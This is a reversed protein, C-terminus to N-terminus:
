KLLKKLQVIEMGIRAAEMVNGLKEQKKREQELQEIELRKPYDTIQRIYDELQRRSVNAPDIDLMALESAKEILREDQLFSIFRSVEPGYGAAYYSYLHAALAAHDEVIFDAGVTEQARDSIDADQMMISLLQKEANVYAPLLPRATLNRSNDISNNWSRTLNDRGASKKQRKFIKYQETKLAELSLNFEDALQRLYHDREVASDLRAIEELAENIYKIQETEDKTDYRSQIVQLRYATLSLTNLLIDQKFRDAGYKGIYEDPDMGRPMQAVKVTCGAGVLQEAGKFAAEIGAQDSDYCIIVNETNRRIIRAQQETLATGLSAIGNYVGAQWASIVDVYGEFLIAEQKKRIHTRARHLNFLLNSKNFLPTEPSNLYKPQEDGLTRAGFAVVRGQTDHIPFMVRGRFKDFVKGGENTSLLGGQVMTPLPYQRKELFHTVYDWRDPSFGLDFEEITAIQMRRNLLYNRALAGYETQLLIHRYLKAVKDHAELMVDKKQQVERNEQTVEERPLEIGAREGLLRVAEPFELAEVKMIFSIVNGSEGCGYCRFLQKDPQVAFSPSKESHFPCLGFYNRGTKKLHVYQGIVDLIDNQIRINEIVEEPIRGAM